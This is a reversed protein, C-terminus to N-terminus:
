YEFLGPYIAAAPWCFMALVLIATVVMVTTRYKIATPSGRTIAAQAPGPPPLEDAPALAAGAVVTHVSGRGMTHVM